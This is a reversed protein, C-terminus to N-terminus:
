RGEYVVNETGSHGELQRIELTRGDETQVIIPGWTGVSIVRAGVAEDNSLMKGRV